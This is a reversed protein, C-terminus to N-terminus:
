RSVLLVGAGFLGVFFAVPLVRLQRVGTAYESGCLRLQSFVETAFTCHTDGGSMLLVVVVVVVIMQMIGVVTSPKLGSLRHFM